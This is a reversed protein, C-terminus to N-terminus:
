EEAGGKETTTGFAEHWCEGCIDCSERVTGYESIFITAFFADNKPFEKNCKDCVIVEKRM